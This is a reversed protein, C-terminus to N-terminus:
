TFKYAIITGFECKEYFSKAGMFLNEFVM